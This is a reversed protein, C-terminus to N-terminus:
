KKSTEVLFANGTESFLYETVLKFRKEEGTNLNRLVLETGEEVPDEPKTSKKEDKKQSALVGIGNTKVENLKNRLSDAIRQLSDVMRALNNVQTLSDPAAKPKGAEPLAKELHYAVWGSGKEPMKYGKV